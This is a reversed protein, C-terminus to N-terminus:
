FEDEKSKLSIQHLITFYILCGALSNENQKAHQNQETGNM